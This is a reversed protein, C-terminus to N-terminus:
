FGRHIVLGHASKWNTAPQFTHQVSLALSLESTPKIFSITELQPRRRLFHIHTKLGKVTASLRETDAAESMGAHGLRELLM